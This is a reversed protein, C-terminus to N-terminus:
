VLAERFGIGRHAVLETLSDYSLTAKIEQLLLGRKQIPIHHNHFADRGHLQFRHPYDIVKQLLIEKVCQNILTESFRFLYSTNHFQYQRIILFIDVDHGREDLLHPPAVTRPALLRGLKAQYALLSKDKDHVTDGLRPEIRHKVQTAHLLLFPQKEEFTFAQGPATGTVAGAEQLIVTSAAYDWPSLRLEFFGDLQGAALHCLDVAASGSRRLDGCRVGLEKAVAFTADKLEQYYPATGFAVLANELPIDAVHIPEGNRFAGGGKVASFLEGAFPDLVIGLMGVGDKVLGVSISSPRYGRIFNTTGDIPDIVWNWGPAMKNEEQEEAFFHAEPLLPSLREILFRQSAMDAETVFNAHGEKTYVHPRPISRILEGAQKVIAIAQQALQELEM